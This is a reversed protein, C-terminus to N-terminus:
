EEELRNVLAVNADLIMHGYNLSAGDNEFIDIYNMLLYMDQKLMALADARDKRLRSIEDRTEALVQLANGTVVAAAELM